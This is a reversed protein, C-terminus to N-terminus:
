DLLDVLKTYLDANDVPAVGDVSDIKVSQGAGDYSVLWDREGILSIHVYTNLEIAVIKNKAWVGKSYEIQQPYYDGFDVKISNTTTTITINAMIKGGEM